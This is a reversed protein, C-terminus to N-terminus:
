GRAQIAATMLLDRGAQAKWASLNESVMEDREATDRRLKKFEEPTSEGWLVRAQLQGRETASLM